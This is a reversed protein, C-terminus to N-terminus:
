LTIKQSRTTENDNIRSVLHQVRPTKVVKIDDSDLIQIISSVKAASNEIGRQLLLVLIVYLSMRSM